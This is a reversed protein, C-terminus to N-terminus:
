KKEIVWTLSRETIFLTSCKGPKEPVIVEKLVKVGEKVAYGAARQAAGVAGAAAGGLAGAAAGGIGGWIAGEIAASGFDRWSWRGGNIPFKAHICL